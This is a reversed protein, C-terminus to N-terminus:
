PASVPQPQWTSGGDSTIFVEHLGPDAPLAVGSSLSTMGVYSFGPETIAAGAPSAQAQQWTSGGNGSRYIGADTALLLLGGPQAALSM